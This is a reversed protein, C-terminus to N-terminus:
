LISHLFHVQLNQQGSVLNDRHRYAFCGGSRVHVVGRHLLDRQVLFRRLIESEELDHFVIETVSDIQLSLFQNLLMGDVKCLAFQLVVLQRVVDVDLVVARCRRRAERQSPPQERRVDLELQGAVLEDRGVEEPLRHVLHVAAVDDGALVEVLQLGHLVDVSPVLYAVEDNETTLSPM